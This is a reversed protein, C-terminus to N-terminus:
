KSNHLRLRLRLRRFKSRKSNNLDKLQNSGVHGFECCICIDGKNYPVVNNMVYFGVHRVIDGSSISGSNQCNNQGPKRKIINKRQFHVQFAIFNTVTCKWTKSKLVSQKSSESALQGVHNSSDFTLYHNLFYGSLFHIDYYIQNCLVSLM